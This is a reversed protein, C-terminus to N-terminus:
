GNMGIQALFAYFDYFISSDDQIADFEGLIHSASVQLSATSHRLFNSKAHGVLDLSNLIGLM